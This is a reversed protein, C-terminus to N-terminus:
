ETRLASVPSVRSARRAPLWSALLAVLLLTVPVATFTLPDVAEVGYLLRALVQGVAAAAVLGIAGGLVVLRMGGRTLMWVLSSSEAGLSLRIGVERARRAVTYSVVGYLGISALLLALAAFGSVIWAGLQRPLLMVALHRAMTRSDYVIMDRDFDRLQRLIALSTAGDETDPTVAAVMTLYDASGARLDRYVYGRPAEGLQRIKATAVVGVIRVAEDNVTVTRDLASGDLFREAFAENVVVVPESAPGGNPDFLRGERLEIGAAAFFAADASSGDVDFHDQGAPPEVGEVTVRVQSTGTANLHLNTTFGVSLVGPLGEVRRVIEDIAALRTEGTSRDDPLLFDVVAAPGAGFGPDVRRSADLSRLALGAAVLLVMSVAVQLVVLGDRLRSGHGRGASAAEDRLTGALDTRTGFWAPALGFFLAAAATVLLSFLLVSTDLSLDLTIPLPLPLDASVLVDLAWVALGVGVTGGAVALLTSETLLQGVLSARSAGMALRVAIEKRRDAARTLLFSALNACAILLVMGVVAMVLALAPVLVRDVMPNMIVDATPVLVFRNYAVWDDPHASRLTAALRETAADAQALTVGPRLRGKGFFGHNGREEFIRSGPQVVSFMTLPVYIDPSFGRISGSFAPEVVGIITFTRGTLRLESGVVGPDGGFRRLWLAHGLVVVPHAGIAVDDEGSFLRGVAPRVGLMDFYGGTVAETTLMEVSGDGEAPVLTLESGGVTEFVDITAERLDRFDPVSLAGHSFGELQWYVDVLREPEELPLDRLVVANVVSFMATNAGIGLALSIVAVATFFPSRALRRLAYTTNRFLADMTRERLSPLHHAPRRAHRVARAAIGLADTWYTLRARLPHIASRAVFEENLDGLLAETRSTPLLLRELLAQPIRPPTPDPENM